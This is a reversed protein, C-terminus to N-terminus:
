TGDDCEYDLLPAGSEFIAVEGYAFDQLGDDDTVWVYHTHTYGTGENVAPCVWWTSLEVASGLDVSEGVEGWLPSVDDGDPDFAVVSVRVSDGEYCADPTTEVPGIVIPSGAPIVTGTSTGAAHLYVTQTWDSPDRAYAPAGGNAGEASTISRVILAGWLEGPQTATATVRLRITCGAELEVLEFTAEDFAEDENSTDSPEWKATARGTATSPCTIESSSWSVGFEGWRGGEVAIGPMAADGGIGLAVVADGTTANRVDVFQEASAGQAIGGFTVLHTSLSLAPAAGCVLADDISDATASDAPESCSQGCWCLALMVPGFLVAPSGRPDGKGGRPRGVENM